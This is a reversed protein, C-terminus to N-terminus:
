TGSRSSTSRFGCCGASARRRAPRLDVERRAIEVARGAGVEVDGALYTTWGRRLAPMGPGRRSDRDAQLVLSDLGDVPSISSCPVVSACPRAVIDTSRDLRERRRPGDLGLDRQADALGAAAGDLARTVSGIRGFPGTTPTRLFQEAAIEALARSAVKSTTITSGSPCRRALGCVAHDPGQVPDLPAVLPEVLVAAPAELRDVRRAADGVARTSTAASSGARMAAGTSHPM